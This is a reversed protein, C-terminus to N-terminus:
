VSEMSSRSVSCFVTLVFLLLGALSCHGKRRDWLKLVTEHIQSINNQIKSVAKRCCRNFAHCHTVIVLERIKFAHFLGSGIASRRNELGIRVGLVTSGRKKTMPIMKAGM